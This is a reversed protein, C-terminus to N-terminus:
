ALFKPSFLALLPILTFILGTAISFLYGGGKILPSYKPHELGLSQFLSWFGHSVHLALALVSVIYYAAYGPQSLTAKVTDAITRSSDIFHFNDLHVGIFILIILGTYIMSKSALTRKNSSKVVQYPTPRAKQNEFFVLTATIIHCLLTTLILLEFISVFIGLAHLHQSYSLFTQRGVFATSNGILHALIFLSLFLGSLAMVTKKGISTTVTRTFWAM